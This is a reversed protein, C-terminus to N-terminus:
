EGDPDGPTGAYEEIEYVVDRRKPVYAVLWLILAAWDDFRDTAILHRNRAADQEYTRIFIM